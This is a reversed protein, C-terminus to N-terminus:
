QHVHGGSKQYFTSLSVIFMHASDNNFINASDNAYTTTLVTIFVYRLVLM